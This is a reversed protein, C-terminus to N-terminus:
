PWRARRQAAFWVVAVGAAPWVLSLNTGDMVTLRGAYAALLYGAAFLLTRTVSTFASM